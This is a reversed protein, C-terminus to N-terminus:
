RSQAACVSPPKTSYLQWCLAQLLYQSHAGRQPALCSPRLVSVTAVGGAVGAPVSTTHEIIFGGRGQVSSMAAAM